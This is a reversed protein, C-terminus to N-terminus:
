VHARGIQPGTAGTNTSNGAIGQFGQSGTYGTPGTTGTGGGGGVDTLLGLLIAENIIASTPTAIDSRSSDILINKNKINLFNNQITSGSM